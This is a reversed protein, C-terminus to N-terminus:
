LDYAVFVSGSGTKNGNNNFGGNILYVAYTASNQCSTLWGGSWIAPATRGLAAYFDQFASRNVTAIAYIQDYSLLFGNRDVNNITLVQNQCETAAPTGVNLEEGIEIIMKTLHKGAYKLDGLNSYFPLRITDFEVNSTAWQKNSSLKEAGIKWCFGNNITGDGRSSVSLTTDNYGGAIIITKDQLEAIQQTSYLKGNADIGFFGNGIQTYRVVIERSILGAVHTENKHDHTYGGIEPLTITYEKGYPIMVICIGSSNFYGVYTRSNTDTCIVPLNELISVTDGSLSSVVTDIILTEERTESTYEYEINRNAMTATFMKDAPQTYDTVFPLIVVYTDGMPVSFTCVGSINIEYTNVIEESTNQVTVNYNGWDVPEPSSLKITVHEEIGTTGIYYEEGTIASKIRTAIKSPESM